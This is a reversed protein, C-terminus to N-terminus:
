RSRGTTLDRRLATATRAAIFGSQLAADVMWNWLGDLPAEREAKLLAPCGITFAYSPPLPWLLKEGPELLRELEVELRARGPRGALRLPAGPFCELSEADIMRREALSRRELSVAALQRLVGVSRGAIMAVAAADPPSAAAVELEIIAALLAPAFPVMSRMGTLILSEAYHFGPQDNVGSSSPGIEDIRELLPAIPSPETGGRWRSPYDTFFQEIAALLEDHLAPSLPAGSHVRLSRIAGAPNAEVFDPVV